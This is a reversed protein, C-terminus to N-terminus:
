YKNTTSSPLKSKRNFKWQQSISGNCPTLRLKSEDDSIQLCKGQQRITNDLEYTFEQTKCSSECDRLGITFNGFDSDFCYNDRRIQKEMTLFWFQDGGERHCPAIKIFTSELYVESLSPAELCYPNNVNEIDGSAQVNSPVLLEPYINTLYWDFSRCKLKERLAKRDSVNGFDVLKFGIREYFHQKYDDLWVEALRLLNRKLPEEYKITSSYPANQRFVHGVHSCTVTELSGGCMWIRFSLELNEGGWIELDPDYRGLYDFYERDIAFLGGAMAPTRIPSFPAGPRNRDRDSLEHWDFTLSWDFGGIQLDSINEKIHIFTKEDIISIVPVVVITANYAIRDLLPELWGTTCEIHSDLFLLVKGTSHDAGIMRARILGERQKTRVIKVVKLMAMYEELAEKLHPHDSYDDVLIIEHLMNPPSRDIVSHVSRLLASWAENHFCIIVSASPLDSAYKDVKCTGKRYDPLYRRVSIRDSAYQNFANDKWGKDYIQKESPSLSDENITYAEGGEGPGKSYEDSKTPPSSPFLGLKAIASSINSHNNKNLENNDHIISNDKDEPRVLVNNEEPEHVAPEIDPLHNANINDDVAQHKVDEEHGPDKDIPPHPNANPFQPANPHNEIVSNDKQAKHQNEVKEHNTLQQDPPRALIQDIRKQGPLYASDATLKNHDLNNTNIWLIFMLGFCVLGLLLLNNKRWFSRRLFYRRM